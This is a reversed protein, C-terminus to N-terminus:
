DAYKVGAERFTAEIFSEVAEYYLEPLERHGGAVKSLSSYPVGLQDSLEKYRVGSLVVAINLRMPLPMNHTPLTVTNMTNMTNM